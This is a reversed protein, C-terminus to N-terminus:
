PLWTVESEKYGLSNLQNPFGQVGFIYQTSCIMSANSDFFVELGKDLSITHSQNGVQFGISRGHAHRMFERDANFWTGVRGGGGARRSATAIRTKADAELGPTKPPNRSMAVVVDVPRSARLQELLWQFGAISRASGLNKGLYRDIIYVRSCSRALPEIRRKFVEERDDGPAIPSRGLAVLSRVRQSSAVARWPVLACGCGCEIEATEAPSPRLDCSRNQVTPCGCAADFRAAVTSPLLLSKLIEAWLKQLDAPMARIANSWEQAIEPTEPRVLLSHDFLAHAFTLASTRDSEHQEHLAAVEPYTFLRVASTM